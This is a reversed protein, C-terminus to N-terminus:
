QHLWAARATCHVRGRPYHIRPAPRMTPRFEFFFKVSRFSQAQITGDCSVTGKANHRKLPPIVLPPIARPSSVRRPFRSASPSTLWAANGSFSAARSSHASGAPPSRASSRPDLQVGTGRPSKASNAYSAAWGSRANTPTWSSNRGHAGLGQSLSNYPPPTSRTFSM